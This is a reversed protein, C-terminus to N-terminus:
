SFYLCPLFYRKIVAFGVELSFLATGARCMFDLLREINYTTHKFEKENRVIEEGAAM